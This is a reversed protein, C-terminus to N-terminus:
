KEVKYLERSYEVVDELVPRIQQMVEPVSDFWEVCSVPRVRETGDPLRVRTHYHETMYKQANLQSADILYKLYDSFDLTFFTEDILSKEIISKISKIGNGSFVINGLCQSVFDADENESLIDEPCGNIKLLRLYGSFFKQRITVLQEDIRSQCLVIRPDAKAKEGLTLSGGGPLTVTGAHKRLILLAILALIFVGLVMMIQAIETWGEM